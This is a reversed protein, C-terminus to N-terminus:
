SIEKVGTILYGGPKAEKLVEELYRFTLNERGGVTVEVTFKTEPEWPMLGMVAFHRNVGDRCWGKEGAMKILYQRVKEVQDAETEVKQLTDLYVDWRRSPFQVNAHRSGGTGGFYRIVGVEGSDMLGRTTGDTQRNLHSVKVSDGVKLDSGVKTIFELETNWSAPYGQGEFRLHVYSGEPQRTVTGIKGRVTRAEGRPPNDDVKVKDGIKLDAAATAM